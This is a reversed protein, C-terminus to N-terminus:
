NDIALTQGVKLGLKVAASGGRVAVELLGSSGILAVPQGVAVDSYTRRVAVWRRGTRLRRVGVEAPVNTVANGFRDISIVRAMLAGAEAPWLDLLVPDVERGKLGGRGCALEAAAPALVDRGHFTASVKATRWKLEHAKGGGLRRWAWTILGNDPCLVYQHNIKALLLGRRTGVGPDVVALHVTGKPFVRLVRELVVSGALVDQPPVQHTVDVVRAMPCKGLLVGKMEAVYSDTLGFDTLLTVIPVDRIPRPRRMSDIYYPKSTPDFRVRCTSFEGRRSRYSLTM